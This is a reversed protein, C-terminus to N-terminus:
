RLLAFDSKFRLINRIQLQYRPFTMGEAVCVFVLLLFSKVGIGYGLGVVLMGLM